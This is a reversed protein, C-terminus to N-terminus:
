QPSKVSSALLGRYSRELQDLRRLLPENRGTYPAEARALAVFWKVVNEFDRLDIFEPALVRRRTNMNHYNGLAVCLGTADYGKACFVSSECTGGDMLRRQYRFQKDRKALEDAVQGCYATPEPSFTAAKDGVRLIPGDGPLANPRQSSNEMSVVLCRRPITGLRAAALAGVFGVEEARTFLFYADCSAHSRTLVDICCLMAALGSLDDCARAHIKTGRVRPDPLDWMGISRPPVPKAVEVIVSDVKRVGSRLKMSVSHITGKIWDRDVFFRVRAKPFYDPSVGGRWLARSASRGVMKESVFGPHDAHATICVPRGARRAGLRVRVLVNGARDTTQTLGRLGECFRRVYDLVFHEAFPATPLSLVERLIKLHSTHV